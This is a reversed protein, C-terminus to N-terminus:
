SLFAFPSRDILFHLRVDNFVDHHDRPLQWSLVPSSIEFIKLLDKGLNGIFNFTSQILLFFGFSFHSVSQFSKTWFNLLNVMYNSPAKLLVSLM